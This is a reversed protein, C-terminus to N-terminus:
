CGALMGSPARELVSRPKKQLSPERRKTAALHEGAVSVGALRVDRHGDFM